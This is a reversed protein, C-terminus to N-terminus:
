RAEKQVENGRFGQEKKKKWSLLSVGGWPLEIGLMIAALAVILSWVVEEM